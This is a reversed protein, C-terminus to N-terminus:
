VTTQRLGNYVVKDKLTERHPDDKPGYPSECAMVLKGKEHARIWSGFWSWLEHALVFM